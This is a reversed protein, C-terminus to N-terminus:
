VRIEFHVSSFLPPFRIQFITKIYLISFSKKEKSEVNQFTDFVIEGKGKEGKNSHCLTELGDNKGVKNSMCISFAFVFSMKFDFLDFM